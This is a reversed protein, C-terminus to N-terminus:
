FRRYFSFFLTIKQVLCLSSLLSKLLKGSFMRWNITFQWLLVSSIDFIACTKGCCLWHRVCAPTICGQSSSERNNRNTTTQTSHWLPQSQCPFDWPQRERNGEIKKTQLSYNFFIISLIQAVLKWESGSLFIAFNRCKSQKITQGISRSCSVRVM